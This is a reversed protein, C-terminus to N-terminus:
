NESQIIMQTLVVSLQRMELAVNENYAMSNLVQDRLPCTIDKACERMEKTVLSTLFAGTPNNYRQKCQSRYQSCINTRPKAEAEGAMKWMGASFLVTCILLILLWTPRSMPSGDPPM